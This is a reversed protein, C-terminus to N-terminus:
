IARLQSIYKLPLETTAIGPAVFSVWTFSFAPAIDNLSDSSSISLSSLALEDNLYHAWFIKIEPKRLAPNMHDILEPLSHDFDGAKAILFYEKINYNLFRMFHTNLVGAKKFVYDTPQAIFFIM